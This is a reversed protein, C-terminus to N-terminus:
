EIQANKYANSKQIYPAVAPQNVDFAPDPNIDITTNKQYGRHETQRNRKKETRTVSWYIFNESVILYGIWGNLPNLKCMYVITFRITEWIKPINRKVKINNQWSNFRHFHTRTHTRAYCVADNNKISCYISMICLHIVQSKVDKEVYNLWILVLVANHLPFGWALWQAVLARFPCSYDLFLTNLLISCCRKRVPKKFGCCHGVRKYWHGTSIHLNM